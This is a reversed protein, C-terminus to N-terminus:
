LGGTQSRQLNRWFAPGGGPLSKGPHGRLRAPEGSECGGCGAAAVCKSCGVGVQEKLGCAINTDLEHWSSFSKDQMMQLAAKIYCCCFALVSLMHQYVCGALM